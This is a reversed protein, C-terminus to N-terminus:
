ILKKLLHALKVHNWITVVSSLFSDPLQYTLVRQGLLLPILCLPPICVGCPDFTMAKTSPFWPLQMGSHDPSTELDREVPPHQSDCVPPHLCLEPQLGKLSSLFVIQCIYLGPMQKPSSKSTDTHTAVIDPQKGSIHPLKLLPTLDCALSSPLAISLPACTSAPSQFHEDTGAGPCSPTRCLILSYRCRRCLHSLTTPPSSVTGCIPTAGWLPARNPPTAPSIWEGSFVFSCFFSSHFVCIRVCVSFHEFHSCWTSATHPM